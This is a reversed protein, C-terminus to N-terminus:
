NTVNTTSTPNSTVTGTFNEQTTVSTSLSEKSANKVRKSSVLTPLNTSFLTSSSTTIQFTTQLPTPSITSTSIAPELTLNQTDSSSHFEQQTTELMIEKTTHLTKQSTTPNTDIM